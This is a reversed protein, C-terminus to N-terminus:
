FIKADIVEGDKFYIRITKGDKFIRIKEIESGNIVTENM